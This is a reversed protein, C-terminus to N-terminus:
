LMSYQKSTYRSRLSYGRLRMRAIHLGSTIPELLTERRKKVKFEEQESYTVLSCPFPPAGTSCPSQTHFCPTEDDLSARHHYSPMKVPKDTMPGGSLILILNSFTTSFSYSFPMLIVFQGSHPM